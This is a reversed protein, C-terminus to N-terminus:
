IKMVSCPCGGERRGGELAQEVLAAMQQANMGYFVQQLNSTSAELERRQYGEKDDTWSRLCRRKM